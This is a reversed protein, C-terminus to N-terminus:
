RFLLVLTKHLVNKLHVDRGFDLNEKDITEISYKKGKLQELIYGYELLLVYDIKDEL